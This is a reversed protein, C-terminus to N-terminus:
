AGWSGDDAVDVSDGEFWWAPPEAPETIPAVYIDEAWLVARPSAVISKTQSGAAFTVRSAELVAPDVLAWIGLLGPLPPLGGLEVDPAVEVIETEHALRVSHDELVRSVAKLDLRRSGPVIALVYGDRGRLLVTKLIEDAPVHLARAEALASDAEAHEVVEFPVNRNKLYAEAVLQKVISMGM